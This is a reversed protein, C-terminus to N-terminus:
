GRRMSASWRRRCPSPPDGEIRGACPMITRLRNARRILRRSPICPSRGFRCTIRTVSAAALRAWKTAEELAFKYRRNLKVDRGAKIYWDALSGMADAEGHQALLAFCRDYADMEKWMYPYGERDVRPKETMEDKWESESWMTLNLDTSNKM